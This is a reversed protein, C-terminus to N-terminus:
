FILFIESIDHVLRLNSLGAESNSFVELIVIINCFLKLLHSEIDFFFKKSCKKGLKSIQVVTFIKQGLIQWTLYRLSNNTWLEANNQQINSM